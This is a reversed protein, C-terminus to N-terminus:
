VQARRLGTRRRLELNGIEEVHAFQTAIFISLEDEDNSALSDSLFLESGRGTLVVKGLKLKDSDILGMGLLSTIAQKQVSEMKKFLIPASPYTLFTKEPRLINLGNFVTRAESSMNTKYLLPPNALFFDAIHLREVGPAPEYKTLLIGTRRIADYVDLQPYWLRGIM